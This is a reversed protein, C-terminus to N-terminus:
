RLYIYNNTKRKRNNKIATTICKPILIYPKIYHDYISLVKRKFLSLEKIKFGNVYRFTNNLIHNRESLVDSIFFRIKDFFIWYWLKKYKLFLLTEFIASSRNANYHIQQSLEESFFTPCRPYAPRKDGYRKIVYLHNEVTLSKENFLDLMYSKM